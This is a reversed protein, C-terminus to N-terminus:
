NARPEKWSVLNVCEIEVTLRAVVVAVSVSHWKQRWELRLALVAVNLLQPWFQRQSGLGKRLRWTSSAFVHPIGIPTHRGHVDEDPWLVFRGLGQHDHPFSRSCVMTRTM